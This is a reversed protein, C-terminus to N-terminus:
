MHVSYKCCKWKGTEWDLERQRGWGKKYDIVNKLVFKIIYIYINPGMLTAQIHM